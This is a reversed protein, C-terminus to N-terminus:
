KIKNKRCRGLLKGAGGKSGGFSMAKDEETRGKGTRTKLQHIYWEFGQFVVTGSGDLVIGDSDESEAV